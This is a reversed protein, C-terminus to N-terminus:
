VVLRAQVRKLLERRREAVFAMKDRGMKQTVHSWRNVRPDFDDLGVGEDTAFLPNMPVASLEDWVDQGVCQRPTRRVHSSVNSPVRRHRVHIARQIACPSPVYPRCPLACQGASSVVRQPYEHSVNPPHCMSPIVRKPIVRQAPQCVQGNALLACNSSDVDKRSSRITVRGAPFARRILSFAALAALFTCSKEKVKSLLSAAGRAEVGACCAQGDGNAFM